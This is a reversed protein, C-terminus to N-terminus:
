MGADEKLDLFELEHCSSIIELVGVTDVLHYAIELQKLKPMTTAIAHAEDNQSLKGEADLTHMNRRLRSLFKCKKGIAELARPGIKSCYSLDLFTLTSLKGAITEIVPDSM